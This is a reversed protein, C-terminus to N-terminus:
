RKKKWGYLIEDHDRGSFGAAKESIPLISLERDLREWEEHQARAVADEDSPPTGNQRRTAIAERLLERLLDEPDKGSERALAELEKEDNPDLKVDMRTEQETLM